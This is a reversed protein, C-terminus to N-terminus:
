LVVGDLWTVWSKVTGIRRHITVDNIDTTPFETLIEALYKNDFTRDNSLYHRYALNYITMSLVARFLLKRSEKPASTSMLNGQDTFKYERSGQKKIIIGLYVLASNYYSTQRTTFRFHETIEEEDLHENDSYLGILEILINFSNAQPIPISKDYYDITRDISDLILNKSQQTTTTEIKFTMSDVFSLDNYSYKDQLSYKYFRFLGNDYVMFIPIIQKDSRKGWLRSPYYLQRIIFDDSNKNKAEVIAIKTDGEFGADIEIQPKQVEVDINSIGNNNEVRFNFPDTRMRGSITHFMKEGVVDDIMNTIIAINIANSESYISELNISDLEPIYKIVPKVKDDNTPLKKYLKFPGIIYNGNNIPLIALKNIKFIEPLSVHFDFKTMLRAEKYENIQRATIEFYDNDKLYELIRYDDFIQVWHQSVSKTSSIKKSM